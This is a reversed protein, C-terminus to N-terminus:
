RLVDLGDRGAEESLDRREGAAAPRLGRGLGADATNDVARAFVRSCSLPPVSPLSLAGPPFFSGGGGGQM